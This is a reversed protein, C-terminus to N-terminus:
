SRRDSRRDNRFGSLMKGINAGEFLGLFADPTSELGDVVTERSTVAGSAVLPVMGAYFDSMRAMYDFVM